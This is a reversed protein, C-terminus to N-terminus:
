VLEDHSALHVNNTQYGSDYKNVAAKATSVADDSVADLVRGFVADMFFCRAIRLRLRLRLRTTETASPM